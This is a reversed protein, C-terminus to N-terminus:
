ALNVMKRLLWESLMLTVGLAFFLWTNWLSRHEIRKEPKVSRAIDQPLRAVSALDYSKGGTEQALANQLTVNRVASRLEASRGSVYFPIPPKFEGTVPDKVLLRYDGEAFVPFRAEFVGPRLLAINFEEGPDSENLQGAADPRLLKATIKRFKDETIPQYEDDFAEVTLVVNDGAQYRAQENDIRAVFRKDGGLAHSFGLHHILQGWFQRYYQEGYKRRLRWTENFGLYVVQGKGYQRIAILPQPQGAGAGGDDCKDTPHVALVQALKHPRRVPQYWPLMGLREWGGNPSNEADSLRMFETQRGLPTLQLQFRGEKARSGSDVEVPLMERLKQVAADLDPNGTAQALRGPGFRPGAMVVLGGGFTGVFEELRECFARTLVEPPVDGLFIVDTAFFESRSRPTLSPLFLEQTQKVKPHASHLYTRFGRLGVLRDRHFVEKIFRWEWTPGFEVFLLRLFDDLIQVKRTVRNNRTVTEQELPAVEAVLEFSGAEQPVFEISDVITRRSEITVTRRGVEMGPDAAIKEESDGGTARRATVVVTVSQGELRQQDLVVSVLRKEGKKIVPPATLDIKLDDASEPGIGVAYIPVKLRKAPSDDDGTPPPGANQDFDSVLVVGALREASHKNHLDDLAAALNTVQGRATLREAVEAPAIGQGLVDSSGLLEVGDRRSVLFYRLRFREHLRAFPNDEKKLLAQVYEARSAKTAGDSSSPAPRPAGDTNPSIQIGAGLESIGTATDFPARQSPPYDDRLTMSETGDIAVYLLPRPYHTYAIKLIPDALILFLLALLAGRLAALLGRALRSGKTQAKFYFVAALAVAVVIIVVLLGPRQRAWSEAFTLGISDISEVTDDLGLTRAIIQRGNM